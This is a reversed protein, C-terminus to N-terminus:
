ERDRQACSALFADLETSKDFVADAGLEECRLRIEPTAYNTLMAARKGAGRRRLRELVGLGSGSKLFLDTVALDWAGENADLWRVADGETEAVGIVHGGTLEEITSVLNERITLNDEVLFVRLTM